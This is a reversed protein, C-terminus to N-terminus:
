ISRAHFKQYAAELQPVLTSSTIPKLIYGCTGADQAQQQYDETSFATLMVICVRYTELIRRAADIGNMVPMKIDMVVLDPLERLVVTVAEQGNGATGVVKLGARTLTRRLQLLTIGEDEVIV